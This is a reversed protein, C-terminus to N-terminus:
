IGWASLDGSFSMEEDNCEIIAKEEEDNAWGGEGKAKEQGENAKEEADNMEEAEEGELVM